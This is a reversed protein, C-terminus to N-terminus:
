RGRVILNTFAELPSPVTNNNATQGNAIVTANPPPSAEPNLTQLLEAQNIPANPLGPLGYQAIRVEAQRRNTLGPIPELIGNVIGKNYLPLTVESAANYNGQKLQSSLRDGFSGVNYALSTLAVLQGPMMPVQPNSQELVTRMATITDQKLWQACLTKPIGDPHQQRYAQAQTPTLLRGYCATPNGAVDLYIGLTDSTKGPKSGEYNKILEATANVVQYTTSAKTPTTSKKTPATETTPTTPAIPVTSPTATPAHATQAATLTPTQFRVIGVASGEFKHITDLFRYFEKDTLSAITRNGDLQSEKAINRQLAATDNESPPFRKAIAANLTLDRYAPSKLLEASARYGTEQDPFIAFRGGTGLSGHEQAFSGEELLGPNNIRWNVHGGIRTEVVGDPHVITTENPKQPNILKYTGTPKLTNKTISTTNKAPSIPPFTATPTAVWLPSLTAAAAAVLVYGDINLSTKTRTLTEKTETM